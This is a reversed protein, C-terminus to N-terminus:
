HDENLYKFHLQKNYNFWEILPKKIYSYTYYIYRGVWYIKLSNCVFTNRENVNLFVLQQRKKTKKLNQTLNDIWWM